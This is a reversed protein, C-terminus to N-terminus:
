KRVQGAGEPAMSLKTQILADKEIHMRCLESHDFSESFYYMVPGFVTKLEALDCTLLFPQLVRPDYYRFLMPNGEADNVTLLGRLHKRMGVPSVRSQAFIGWHKGWCESLLWDAFGSGAELLVVYPAVHILDDSLEGRYLCLNPPGMEYLKQPLGPVSAGDLVAYTHAADRFLYKELQEKM